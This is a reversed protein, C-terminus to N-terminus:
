ILHNQGTFITFYNIDPLQLKDSRGRLGGEAPFSGEFHLLVQSNSDPTLRFWAMRLKPKRISRHTGGDRNKDARVLLLFPLLCDRFAFSRFSQGFKRGM